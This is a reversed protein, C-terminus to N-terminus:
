MIKNHQYIRENLKLYQKLIAMTFLSRLDCHILADFERTHKAHCRKSYKANVVFYKCNTNVM